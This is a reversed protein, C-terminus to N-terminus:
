SGWGKIEVFECGAAGLAAPLLRKWQNYTELDRNEMDFGRGPRGSLSVFFPSGVPLRSQVYETYLGAAATFPRWGEFVLIVGRDKVINSFLSELTDADDEEDLSVFSIEAPFASWMGSLVKRWSDEDNLDERGSPILISFVTSTNVDASDPQRFSIPISEVPPENGGVDVGPTSMMLLLQHCRADHFSRRGPSIKRRIFSYLFLLLRPLVGYVLIAMCLFTWWATLDSNILGTIGNKLIIRSGDVQAASPPPILERWPLSLSYIFRFVDRSSVNLTTQWGFAMDQVIGKWLVATFIGLHFFFARLQLLMSVSWRILGRYNMGRGGFRVIGGTLADTHERDMLGLRRGLDTMFSLTRMVRDMMRRFRRGVPPIFSTIVSFLTLFFPIGILVTMAPFLNVPQSGAYSLVGWGLGNGALFGFLLLVIGSIRYFRDVTIGPLVRTGSSRRFSLWARFIRGPNKKGEYNRYWHRLEDSTSSSDIEEGLFVEFDLIDGPTWRDSM